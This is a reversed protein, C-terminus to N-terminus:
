FPNAMDSPSQTYFKLPAKRVREALAREFCLRGLSKTPYRSSICFFLVVQHAAATSKQDWIFYLGIIKSTPLNIPPPMSPMECM